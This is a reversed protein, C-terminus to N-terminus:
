NLKYAWLSHDKKNIFFLFEENDDMLLNTADADELLFMPYVNNRELNIEWLADEFSVLGQLWSDPYIAGTPVSEPTACYILNENKKSWVCKETFTELFNLDPREKNELDLVRLFIKANDFGSYLFRDGNPSALVSLGFVESLIKRLGGNTNLVYASGPFIFSPKTTLLIENESIAGASWEKAPSEFVQERETGNPNSIFGVSGESDELIYFIKNSEPLYTLNKIDTPLFTLSTKYLGEGEEEVVIPKKAGTIENLKERTREDVVGNSEEITAYKEQFREVAAKTAPGFISTELGPSGSGSVAVRTDPDQNLVRQLNLVAVGTSGQQLETTFEYGSIIGGIESEPSLIQLAVSEITERDEKLFRLIATDTGAWVAEQIKPLTTNSIRILNASYSGTEWIHGTARDIFRVFIEGNQSFVNFGAIPNQSIKSLPSNFIQETPSFENEGVEEQTPTVPRLTPTESTRGFPFFDRISLGSNEEGPAQRTALIFFTLALVAVIILIILIVKKKKMNINIRFASVSM